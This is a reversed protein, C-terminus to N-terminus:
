RKEMPPIAELERLINPLTEVTPDSIKYELVFLEKSNVQVHVAEKLQSKTTTRIPKTRVLSAYSTFVRFIVDFNAGGGERLETHRCRERDM